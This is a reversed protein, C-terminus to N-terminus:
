SITPYNEAAEKLCQKELAFFKAIREKHSDLFGIILLARPHWCDCANVFIKGEFAVGGPGYDLSFAMPDKQLAELEGEYITWGQDPNYYTKGCVCRMRFSGSSDSFAREFNQLKQTM